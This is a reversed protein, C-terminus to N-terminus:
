RCIWTFCNVRIIFDKILALSEKPIFKNIDDFEVDSLSLENSFNSEVGEGSLFSKMTQAIPKGKKNIKGIIEYISDLDGDYPFRHHIALNVVKSMKGGDEDTGIIHGDLSSIVRDGKLNYVCKTIYGKYDQCFSRLEENDGLKIKLKIDNCINDVRKFVEFPAEVRIGVELQQEGDSYAIGIDNAIKLLQRSGIRGVAMVVTTASYVDKDTKITFTGDNNKNIEVVREELFVDVGQANLYSSINKAIRNMSLKSVKQANYYKLDIGSKEFDKRLQEIEEKRPYARKSKGYKELVADTYDYLGELENLDQCFDLLGTGAPYRSLKTGEFFQAGGFGGL